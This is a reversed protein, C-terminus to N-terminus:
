EGMALRLRQFAESWLVGDPPICELMISANSGSTRYTSAFGHWDITGEGPFRHQDKTGDNDHLHTTVAHPLLAQAFDPFRGSLNAHGSDFCVGVSGRDTGDLLDFIEEPTHGLYGPPLNELAVVVGYEKAVVALERLVGRARELRGNAAGPLVDSAHVIVKGAGLLNALEISDILADVGREHTEDDLSSVDYHPGFPSHISHVRIGSLSLASVMKQLEYGNRHDFYDPFDIGIEIATVGQDALLPIADVLKEAGRYWAPCVIELTFELGSWPARRVRLHHANGRTSHRDRAIRRLSGVSKTRPHPADQAPM